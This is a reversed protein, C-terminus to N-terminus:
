RLPHRLPNRLPEPCLLTCSMTVICDEAIHLEMPLPGNIRTNFNLTMTLGQKDQSRMTACASVGARECTRLARM